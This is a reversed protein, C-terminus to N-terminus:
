PEELKLEDPVKYKKRAKLFDAKTMPGLRLSKPHYVLWYYIKQKGEKYRYVEDYLPDNIKNPKQTAIILTDNYNYSLINAPIDKGSPRHSLIDHIDTGEDRFFYGGSLEKTYDGGSSCSHINYVITLLLILTKIKEMHRNLLM